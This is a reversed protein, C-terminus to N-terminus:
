SWRSDGGYGFPDLAEDSGGHGFMDGEVDDQDKITKYTARAMGRGGKVSLGKESQDTAEKNSTNAYPNPDRPTVQDEHCPGPAIAGAKTRGETNAAGIEMGAELTAQTNPKDAYPTPDPYEALSSKRNNDAHPYMGM